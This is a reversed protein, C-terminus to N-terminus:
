SSDDCPTRSFGAITHSSGAIEAVVSGGFFVLNRPFSLSDCGFACHACVLWLVDSVRVKEHSSWHSPAFLAPALKPLQGSDGSEWSLWPLPVASRKSKHWWEPEKRISGASVSRMACRRQSPRYAAQTPWPAAMTGIRGVTHECDGVMSQSACAENRRNM